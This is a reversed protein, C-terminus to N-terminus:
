PAAGLMRQLRAAADRMRNQEGAHRARFLLNHPTVTPPVFPVLTVEWGAAELRLTREADVLSQSFRRRVEAHRPLGLRDAQADHAHPYCCPVLLLWRARADITAAIVDDSAGGCAHLAIVVDPARPWLARDGVAGAHVETETARSLLAAAQRSREARAPEREIVVLREVGVLEAAVLGAYAHGAAADVVLGRRGIRSLEGLLAALERAKKRDEDRLNHGDLYLRQLAREVNILLPM